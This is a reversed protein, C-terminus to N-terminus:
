FARRRRGWVTNRFKKRGCAAQHSQANGSTAYSAVAFFDAAGSTILVRAATWTGAKGVRFCKVRWMRCMRGSFQKGAIDTLYLRGAGRRNAASTWRPRTLICFIRRRLFSTCRRFGQPSRAYGARASPPGAAVRSTKGRRLPFFPPPVVGSSPDREAANGIAETRYAKQVVCSHCNTLVTSASRM